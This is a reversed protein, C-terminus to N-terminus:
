KQQLLLADHGAQIQRLRFFFGVAACTLGITIGIWFGFPGLRTYVALLYGSPIGIIWYSVLAIVFPINVDKYGRLVGQLAGQAADSLQYFVAFILFQGILLAVEPNDTYFYAITERFIILFISAIALVGIALWVGFVSYQRADDYRKAGVEYAVLITLAMAVSLPMMFLITTFNLAAQHAAITVTSFLAGM